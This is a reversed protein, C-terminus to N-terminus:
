RTLGEFETIDVPEVAKVETPLAMRRIYAFDNGLVTIPEGCMQFQNLASSRRDRITQYTRLRLGEKSRREILLLALGITGPIALASWIGLFPLTILMIIFAPALSIAAVWFTRHKMEVTGIVTTRGQSSTRGTYDTLLFLSNIGHM